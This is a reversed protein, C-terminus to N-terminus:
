KHEIEIKKSRTSMSNSISASKANLALPLAEQEYHQKSRPAVQLMNLELEMSAMTLLSLTQRCQSVIADRTTQNICPSLLIKHLDELETVYCRICDM